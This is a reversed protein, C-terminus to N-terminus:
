RKRKRRRASGDLLALAPRVVSELVARSPNSRSLVRTGLLVGLLLRATDAAAITRPISGDAQGALICRRFFAEIEAFQAVIMARFAADHPAVELASNVLFCGKRNPDKVSHDIVEAFFRRIAAKPPGAAELRRLRDHTTGDLYQRLARAFLRQKDGFANYLSPATLGMSATLDRVSTAEYGRQWFCELAADVAATEDFERPRAM